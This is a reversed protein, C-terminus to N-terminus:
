YRRSDVRQLPGARVNALHSGSLDAYRPRSVDTTGELRRQSTLPSRVRCWVKRHGRRELLLGAKWLASHLNVAADKPSQPRITWRQQALAPGSTSAPLHIPWSTDGILGDAAIAAPIYFTGPQTFDNVCFGAEWLATHLDAAAYLWFNAHRGDPGAFAAPPGFRYTREVYPPIVAGPHRVARYLRTGASLTLHAGALARRLVPTPPLTVAIHEPALNTPTTM